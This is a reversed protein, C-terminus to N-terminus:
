ATKALVHLYISTCLSVFQLVQAVLRVSCVCLFCDWPGCTTMPVLAMCHKCLAVPQPSLSTQNIIPQNKIKNWPCTAHVTCVLPLCLKFPCTWTVKGVFALWNLNMPCTTPVFITGLFISPLKSRASERSGCTVFRNFMTYFTAVEYVRMRPMELMDAVYNMVSLPVWGSFCYGFALIVECVIM